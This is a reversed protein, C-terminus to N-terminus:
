TQEQEKSDEMVGDSNLWGSVLAEIETTSAKTMMSWDLTAECVRCSDEKPEVLGGCNQCACGDFAGVIDFIEYVM